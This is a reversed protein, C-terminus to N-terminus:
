GQPLRISSLAGTALGTQVLRQPRSGVQTRQPHQRTMCTSKTALVACTSIAAPVAISRAAAKACTASIHHARNCKFQIVAQAFARFGGRTRELTAMAQCPMGVDLDIEGIRELM